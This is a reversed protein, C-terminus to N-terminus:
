KRVALLAIAAVGAVIMLNANRFEPVTQFDEIFQRGFTGARTFFGPSGLSGDSNIFIPQRAGAEITALAAQKNANITALQLKNNAKQVAIENKANLFTGYGNIAANTLQLVSSLTGGSSSTAPPVTEIPASVEFNSARLSSPQFLDAGSFGLPNNSFDLGNM